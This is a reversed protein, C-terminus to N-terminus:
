WAESEHAPAEVSLKDGVQAAAGGGGRAPRIMQSPVDTEVSDDDYKITHLGEVIKVM